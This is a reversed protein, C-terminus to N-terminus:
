IVFPPDLHLISYHGYPLSSNNEDFYRKDCFLKLGIRNQKVTFIEHKKSIIRNQEIMRGEKEYLAAYYDKFTITKIVSKTIGKAKKIAKSEDEDDLLVCYLKSSLYVFKSIIRDGFEDKLLGSVKANKPQVNYKNNEKFMSTDFLNPFQKYIHMMDDKILICLSDTDIYILSPEKMIPTLQIYYLYYMYYKSLDLIVSSIVSPSDFEISKKALEVGVLNDNFILINRLRPSSTRKHFKKFIANEDLDNGTILHIDRYKFKKQQFKGYLVNSLSKFINVYFKPLSADARLSTNLDIYKKLWLSHRFVMARKVNIIELGLQCVLELLKIHCIYSKKDYLTSVLKTYKSNKILKHEPCLPFFRHGQHISPPYRLDVMVLYGLDPDNSMKSLNFQIQNLEEKNAWRYGGEPLPFNSMCYPYLSVTDLFIIQQEEGKSSDVGNKLHRSNAEILHFNGQCIGGRISKEVYNVFDVNPLLELTKDTYSLACNFSFGALSFYHAPDVKYHLYVLDRFQTFVETLLYVDSCLYFIVFDLLNHMNLAKYLNLSYQYDEETAKELTLTNFFDTIPPFETESLIEFSTFKEYCMLQKKYIRSDFKYNKHTEKLYKEYIPFKHISDVLSALSSNLFQYSDVVRITLSLYKDIFIKWSLMTYKESTRPIIFLERGLKSLALVLIHIDYSLANHFYIPFIYKEKCIRNCLGHVYGRANGCFPENPDAGPYLKDPRLSHDHDLDIKGILEKGCIKCKNNQKKLLFNKVENSIKTIPYKKSFYTKFLYLVDAELSEIFKFITDEGEFIRIKELYKDNTYSTWLYAGAFCQHYQYPLTYSTSPNPQTSSISKLLCELDGYAIFKMKYCTEFKEFKIEKKNFNVVTNGCGIEKHTKLNKTNSYHALCTKCFFIPKKNKSVESHFTTDFDEILCYHFKNESELLLLDLHNKKEEDSLLIIYFEGKEYGYLNISLELHKNAVIFKKIDSYALPFIFGKLNFMNLKKKYHITFIRKRKGIIPFMKAIICYLICFSDKNHVNLIPKARLRLPLPIYTGGKKFPSFKFLEITLFLVTQLSWGSQSGQFEKSENVIKDFHEYTREEFDDTKTLISYKSTIYKIDESDDNPKYYKGILSMRFKIMNLQALELKLVDLIVDYYKKLFEEITATEKENIIKYIKLNNKLATEALFVNKSIKKMIANQHIRMKQHNMSFRSDYRHFCVDCRLNNSNSKECREEHASCVSKESFHKKCHICSKVIIEHEKLEEKTQFYFSCCECNYSKVDCDM